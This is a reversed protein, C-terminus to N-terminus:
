LGGGAVLSELERQSGLILHAAQEAERCVIVALGSRRQKGGRGIGGGHLVEADAHLERQCPLPIPRNSLISFNFLQFTSFNFLQFISFNFLQFTSFNFKLGEENGSRERLEKIDAGAEGVASSSSAIGEANRIAAESECSKSIPVPKASLRHTARSAKPM